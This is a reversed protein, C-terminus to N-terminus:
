WNSELVSEAVTENELKYTSPIKTIYKLNLLNEANSESYLKSDGVIYPPFPSSKLDKLLKKSREKLIKNDSSNGDHCKMMLPIGGNQSAILELIVQKLDPRHDKSYGHTIKIENEDTDEHYNGSVSLSTTDVSM